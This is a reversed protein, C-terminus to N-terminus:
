FRLGIGVLVGHQAVKWRFNGDEFDDALYRYAATIRWHDSLRWSAGLIIQGTLFSSVGFGGVDTVAHLYWSKGLNFQFNAGVIPDVWAKTQSLSTAPLLGADFDVDTDIRWGRAGAFFEALGRDEMTMTYGATLSGMLLQSELHSGSFLGGAPEGDASVKIYNFDATFTLRKLRLKAAAMVGFDLDQVLDSFKVGVDTSLGRVGVTGKAGAAWFYPAIEFSSTENERKEEEQAAAVSAALGLCFALTIGITFLRM